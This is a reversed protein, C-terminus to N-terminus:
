SHDPIYLTTWEWSPDKREPDLTLAERILRDRKALKEARVDHHQMFGAFDAGAEAHEADHLRQEIETM